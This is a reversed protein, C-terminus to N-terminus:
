NDLFLITASYYNENVPMHCSFSQLHTPFVITQMSVRMTVTGGHFLDGWRPGPAADTPSVTAERQHTERFQLHMVSVTFRVFDGFFDLLTKSLFSTTELNWKEQPTILTSKETSSEQPTDKM